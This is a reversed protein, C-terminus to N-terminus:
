SVATPSTTSESPLLPNTHSQSPCHLVYRAHHPHADHGPFIERMINEFSRLSVGHFRQTVTTYKNTAPADSRTALFRRIQDLTTTPEPSSPSVPHWSPTSAVRDSVIASSGLSSSAAVPASPRPKSTSLPPTRTPPSLASPLRSPPNLIVSIPLISTRFRSRFFDGNYATAM